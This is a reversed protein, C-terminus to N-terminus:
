ARIQICSDTVNEVVGDISAHVYAGLKDAPPKGIVQGCKVRQGKKVTAIAPHGIHQSMPITVLSDTLVGNVLPGTNNFADIGLKLMLKPLPAKRYRAMPHESVSNPKFKLRGEARQMMERKMDSSINKPDLDEPCSYMTCLNCECCFEAGAVLDWDTTRFGQNRMNKHPEIPHGLLFRPCLETCFSCQDCSAKAIKEYEANSRMYKRALDHDRNLVIVGGTTKTVPQNFDESYKGMMPGGMILVPDECDVGGAAEICKSISVGVAVELSVPNKVAGAVTMFTTTVPKNKAINLLTEVNTVVCGATLPINGPAVVRGTTEYVLTVEDGAPYFNGLEVIRMDDHLQPKLSNIVDKYKGKIGLLGEKAGLLDIGIRMGKIVYEGYLKLLEKDKHLLPECEAGNMILYEAKANFKVHSPFGAGGAGVVGANQIDSLQM